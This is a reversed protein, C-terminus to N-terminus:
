GKTTTEKAKIEKIISKNATFVQHDELQKIYIMTTKINTHGMAQSIIPVAVHNKYAISAWTHRAVYSTLHSSLCAQKEIKKLQRNYQNLATSYDQAHLSPFLFNSDKSHYRRIIELMCPELKVRITQGTKHRHYTLIKDKIQSHQLHYLDIFPMGMAYISFLFMDKAVMTKEVDDKLKAASTKTTSPKSSRRSDTQELKKVEKSTIARKPTPANGTFSSSFPHTKRTKSWPCENYIARLSRLYCSRTNISIGRLVLWHNYEEILHQDIKHIHLSPIAKQRGDKNEELFETLSRTATIYNKITSASRTGKMQEIHRQAYQLFDHKTSSTPKNKGKGRKRGGKQKHRKRKDTFVLKLINKIKKWLKAKKCKQRNQMM